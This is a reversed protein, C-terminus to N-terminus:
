RFRAYFEEIMSKLPSSQIGEFNTAYDLSQPQFFSNMKGSRSVVNLVKMTVTNPGWRLIRKKPFLLGKAYPAHDDATIEAQNTWRIKRILFLDQEIWLGPTLKEESVSTPIGLAYTVVNQSRGLRVFNEPEYKFEETPKIKKSNASPIPAMSTSEPIIQNQILANQLADSNRFHFWREIFDASIKQSERKKALNLSWRQGSEYVYQIKIKDAQDKPPAVTLRMTKDNEVLWIERWSLSDTGNSFEIEQDIAYVGSGSNEVTRQLIMKSPPIYAWLVFSLFLSWM